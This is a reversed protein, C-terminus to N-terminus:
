VRACVGLIQVEHPFSTGIVHFKQGKQGALVKLGLNRMESPFLFFDFFARTHHQTARAEGSFFVSRVVEDFASEGLLGGFFAIQSNDM